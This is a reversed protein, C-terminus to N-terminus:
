FRIIYYLAVYPNTIDIIEGSGTMSTTASIGTSTSNVTVGSYGSNVTVGTVQSGISIGTTSSGTTRGVFYSDNDYDTSSNTGVQNHSGSGHNESWVTDQYSHTHGPDTTNHIHGPDTTGHTHGPDTVVHSHGPDSVTVTHRHAPMQASSLTTNLQGGTTNYDHSVDCGMIFRGGLNPLNFTTTGDGAGFNTSIVEFLDSYSTRSIASGDCVLFGAPASNASYVIITGVPLLMNRLHLALSYADLEGSVTVNGIINTDGRCLPM